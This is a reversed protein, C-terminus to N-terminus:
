IRKGYKGISIILISLAIGLCVGITLFVARPAHVFWDPGAYEYERLWAEREPTIHQFIAASFSLVVLAIGLTGSVFYRRRIVMAPITTVREETVTGTRDAKVLLGWFHSAMLCGAVIGVMEMAESFVAYTM